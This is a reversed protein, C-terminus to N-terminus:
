LSVVECKYEQFSLKGMISIVKLKGIMEATETGV